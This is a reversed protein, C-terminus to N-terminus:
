ARDSRGAIAAERLIHLTEAEVGFIGPADRSIEGYIIAQTVVRREAEEDRGAMVLTEIWGEGTVADNGSNRVVIAFSESRPESNRVTEARQLFRNKAAADSKIVVIERLVAPHFSEVRHVVEVNLICGSRGRQDIRIVM